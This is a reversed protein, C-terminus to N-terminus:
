KRSSGPTYIIKTSFGSLLSQYSYRYTSLLIINFHIMFLIHHRQFLNFMKAEKTVNMHCLTQMFYLEEKEQNLVMGNSSISLRPRKSNMTTGKQKWTKWIIRKREEMNEHKM